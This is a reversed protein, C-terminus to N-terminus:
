RNGMTVSALTPASRYAAWRIMHGCVIAVWPCIVWFWVYPWPQGAKNYTVWMALVVPGHSLFIVFSAKSLKALKTGFWSDQFSSVIPWILFPCILVFWIRNEIRLAVILVCLIVLFVACIPWARDIKRLDWSLLAAMGGLYFNVAMTDRLVVEGDLNNLFFVSVVLLGIYPSFRIMIGFIPALMSVIFLDRLFNLPYNVPSSRWGIVGDIWNDMTLPYAQVSFDHNIMSYKQLIYLAIM